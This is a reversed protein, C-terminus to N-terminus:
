RCPSVSPRVPDAVWTYCLRAQSGTSRSGDLRDIALGTAEAPVVDFAAALASEFEKM